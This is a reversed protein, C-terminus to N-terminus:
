LSTRAMAGSATAGNLFIPVEGAPFSLETKRGDSEQELVIFNTFGHHQVSIVVGGVEITRGRKGRLTEYYLDRLNALFEDLNSLPLRIWRDEWNLYLMHEEPELRLFVIHRGLKLDSLPTGRPQPEAEAASEDEAQAFEDLPDSEGAEVEETARDSGAQGGNLSPDEVNTEALAEALEVPEELEKHERLRNREEESLRGLLGAACQALMRGFRPLYEAPMSLRPEYGLAVDSTPPKLLDLCFLKRGDLVRTRAWITSGDSCALQEGAAAQEEEVDLMARLTALVRDLDTLDLTLHVDEPIWLSGVRRWQHLVLANGDDTEELVGAIRIGRPHFAVREGEVTIWDAGPLPWRRLTERELDDEEPEPPPPSSLKPRFRTLIDQLRELHEAGIVLGDDAPRWTDRVRQWFGFRALYRTGFPETEARLRRGEDKDWVVRAVQEGGHSAELLEAIGEQLADLDVAEVTLASRSPAFGTPSRKWIRIDVQRRGGVIAAQVHLENQDDQGIVVTDLVGSKREM